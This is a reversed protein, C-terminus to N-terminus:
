PSSYRENTATLTDYNKHLKVLKEWFQTSSPSLSYHYSKMVLNQSISIIEKSFCRKSPGELLGDLVWNLLVLHISM